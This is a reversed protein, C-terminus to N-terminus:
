GEARKAKRKRHNRYGVWTAILALVVFVGAVLTFNALIKEQHQEWEKGLVYGLTLLSCTWIIAGCYAFLAFVRYRLKSIGTAFASIHRLGPIYFGFVLVWRGFRNFFADFKELRKHTIHIYKGYKTVLSYGLTRGLYYSLTIGTIVGLAACIYAPVPLFLKKSILFGIFIIVTEDPLPAGFMGLCLLGYIAAYGYKSLLQKALELLDM